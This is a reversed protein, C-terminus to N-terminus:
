RRRTKGVERSTRPCIRYRLAVCYMSLARATPTDVGRIRRRCRRGFAMLGITTVTDIPIPVMTPVSITRLQSPSPM